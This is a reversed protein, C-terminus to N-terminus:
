GQKKLEQYEAELRQIEKLVDWMKPNGSAELDEFSEQLAKRRDLNALKQNVIPSNM